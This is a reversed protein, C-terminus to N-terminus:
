YVLNAGFDPIRGAKALEGWEALTTLDRDSNWFKSCLDFYELVVGQEGRELLDKALAMNPGFSDLQPSGPTQGAKLLRDKAEELNGEGLAIQGLILHGHHIRNGFNWGATINSLMADAYKRAKETEGAVFAAKALDKLIHDGHAKGLLEYAREFQILALAAANPDPEGDGDMELSYLHGLETAWEPNSEDIRQARQILEIALRRDDLTYFEAANRLVDLNEPMSELHQSWASSAEGYCDAELYRDVTGDPTALVRAEPQNRILWMIHEIRRTWAESDRDFRGYYGILQVRSNQHEPEDVLVKELAKAEEESLQSGVELVDYPHQAGCGLILWSGAVLAAIPLLQRIRM